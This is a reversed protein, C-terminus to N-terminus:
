PNHSTEQATQSSADGASPAPTEGIPQAPTESVTQPPTDSVTQPPTDSVTQPPTDGVPQSPLADASAEAAARNEEKVALWIEERFISVGRPAEIGLRVTSASVEMVTVLIDDGIVVREGQRRALILM